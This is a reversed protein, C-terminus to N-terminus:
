QIPPVDPEKAKPEPRRATEKLTLDQNEIEGGTGLLFRDGDLKANINLVPNADGTFRAQLLPSWKGEKDRVYGNGFWAELSLTASVKNRKFDEIFSHYGSLLKGKKLTSFTVLHKWEKKEQMYFHGAYATREGDPKATM